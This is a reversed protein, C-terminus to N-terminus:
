RSDSINDSPSQAVLPGIAQALPVMMEGMGKMDQWGRGGVNLAGLVKGDYIIPINALTDCGLGIVIAAGPYEANIRDHGIAFYPKREEYILKTRENSPLPKRGSLPYERPVSTFIRRSWVEEEVKLITTFLRGFLRDVVKDLAVFAADPQGPLSFSGTIERLGANIAQDHNTM